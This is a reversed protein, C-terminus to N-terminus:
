IILAPYPLARTVRFDRSKKIIKQPLPNLPRSPLSHPPPPPPRSPPAATRSKLNRKLRTRIRGVCGVGM